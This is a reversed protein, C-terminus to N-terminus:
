KKYLPGAIDKWHYFHFTKNDSMAVFLGTEFGPLAIETVDSGDSENAQVKATHLHPHDHPNNGQGERPFIRFSNVQQDSVIIFGSTADKKFISIGEHDEKFGETGFLALEENGKAPDAYYKRIGVGEDSFYVFGLEDDVAIAEIENKGSYTGFKRVVEAHLKGSKESLRYQWLYTGDTPGNKRGVIVDIKGDPHKYCSIGMLDRFEEGTEGQYVELGGNDIAQMDPLSFVRIKHTLREAVVAIDISKGGFSFGYEIDVNNPRKLGHVSKGPVEKGNLDFVYLAGDEDKDTGIILSKSLDDRNIWIAPDDTDHLTTDTIVAPAIPLTDQVVPKEITATQEQPKEQKCAVMGFAIVFIYPIRKM